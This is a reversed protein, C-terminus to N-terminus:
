VFTFGAVLLEIPDICVETLEQKTIFVFVVTRTKLLVFNPTIPDDIRTSPIMASGTLFMLVKSLVDPSTLWEAFWQRSEREARKIATNKTKSMESWDLIGM